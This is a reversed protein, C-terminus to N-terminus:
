CDTGTDEAFVLVRKTFYRSLKQVCQDGRQGEDDRTAGRFAAGTRGCLIIGTMICGMERTTGIAVMDAVYIGAGFKELSTSGVFAIILGVLFNILAVIGLAQPGCEQMVLWADSWRFQAQGRVLKALALCSRASSSCWRGRGAWRRLGGECGYDQLWSQKAAERRVDKKEPV